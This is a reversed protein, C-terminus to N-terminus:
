LRQNFYVFTRSLDVHQGTERRVLYELAGVLANAACSGLSSQDEVPTM